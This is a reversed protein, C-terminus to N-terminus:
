APLIHCSTHLHAAGFVKVVRALVSEIGACIDLREVAM